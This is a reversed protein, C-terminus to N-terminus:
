MRLGSGGATLARDVRLSPQDTGFLAQDEAKRPADIPQQEATPSPPAPAPAAQIQPTPSKSGFCM